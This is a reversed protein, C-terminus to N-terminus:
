APAITTITGSSGHWKLAGAEAYLYGGAAPNGAPATTRNGIFIILEASNWGAPAALLAMNGDTGTGSSAGILLELDGSTSNTGANDGGSRVTMDGGTSGAGSVDQAHIIFPAATTAGATEDIQYFIPGTLAAAFALLDRHATNITSESVFRQTGGVMLGTQSISDVYSLNSRLPYAGGVWITNGTVCALGGISGTSPNDLFTIRGNQGYRADGSLAPNAGTATYGTTIINQAGFNPSIKTGAIAATADVNVNAVLAWVGGDAGAPNTLVTNNAGLQSVSGLATTKVLPTIYVVKTLLIPTTNVTIVGTNTCRFIEQGHTAGEEVYVTMGPTIEGTEDALINRTFVWKTGASGATNIDYIGNHVDSSSGSTEVLLKDGAVVAVGDINGLAGNANATLTGASANFTYAPLAAATAARVSDKWDGGGNEAFTFTVYDNIPDDAINVGVFNWVKRTPEFRVGSDYLEQGTLDDLWTM